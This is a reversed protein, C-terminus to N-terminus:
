LMNHGTLRCHQAQIMDEHAAQWLVLHSGMQCCEMQGSGHLTMSAQMPIFIARYIM